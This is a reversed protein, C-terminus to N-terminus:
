GRGARHAPLRGALADRSFNPPINLVGNIQGNRLDRLATTQDTYPVTDFTRANAAVAQFMEKLKVGPVGHDEDVVGVELNKVKGGFAYGLVMLQVLPMIMSVM